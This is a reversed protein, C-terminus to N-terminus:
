DPRAGAAAVAGLLGGLLVDRLRERPEERRELWHLTAGDIAWLWGIAASRLVPPPPGGAVLGGVLREATTTRFETVLARVEAVGLSAMVKRYAVANEEIWELYADLSRRAQEVPPLSPDPEVRQRLEEAGEALIALFFDRKSPFYHYLLGKSIGAERAIRSM